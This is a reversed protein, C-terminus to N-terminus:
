VYLLTFALICLAAAALDRIGLRHSDGRFKLFNLMAGTPCGFRCYAMPSVLSMLLGFIFISITAWGAVRFAFADFPEIAALNTTTRLIASLIVIALLVFPILELWWAVRTPIKLTWKIRKRVPKARALQQIAGFPCIHQCYPQHKSVIPILLAALSLLVLGPVVSWPVGHAAWGEISAQSLLHGNVFGLLVIVALQFSLRFWKKRSLKTFSFTVGILTLIVTVFDAWYSILSRTVVRVKSNAQDSKSRSNIVATAAIPLADAVSRSTMTAGSVGEIGLAKPDMAALESLTKGKYLNLFSYEDNLYRAYPENEYTQDVVLGVCEGDVDFGALTATPGQYGSLHDGAPTTTLVFGIRQQDAGIADWIMPSDSETLESVDSFLERVNELKPKSDFKLSPASGNMRNAVAAVIAYSTLTAGSVGDLGRWEESTDFSLGNFSDLFKPDRKVLEVHDFTDGSNLIATSQIKNELDLAILCNTPGSYGIVDDSKPSTQLVYGIKSDTSDVVLSGGIRPDVDGIRADDGFISSVFDIAMSNSALQSEVMPTASAAYRIMALISVFLLVRFIHVALRLSRQSSEGQHSVKVVPLKTM